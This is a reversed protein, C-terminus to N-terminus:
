WPGGIVTFASWYYSHIFEREGLLALESPFHNQDPFTDTGMALVPTNRVDVYRTDTLSLCPM